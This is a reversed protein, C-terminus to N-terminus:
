KRPAAYSTSDSVFGLNEPPWYSVWAKGLIRDQSLPGHIRSDSSNGRNDGMVYYQDPPLVLPGIHGSSNAQDLYPEDLKSGNVLITRDSIEIEDGPVGIVRKIFDEQQDWARFVVIDGRQPESLSAYSLRNILLRQGNHLTPEMSSGEVLRSQVAFQIGFAILVTLFLTEVIDRLTGDARQSADGGAGLPETRTWESQGISTPFSGAVPPWAMGDREFQSPSSDGSVRPTYRQRDFESLETL